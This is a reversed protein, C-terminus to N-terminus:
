PFEWIECRGGAIRGLLNCPSDLNWLSRPRTWNRRQFDSASSRIHPDAAHGIHVSHPIEGFCILATRHSCWRVFHHIVTITGHKLFGSSLQFIVDNVHSFIRYFPCSTVGWLWSGGKCRPFHQLCLAKCEKPVASASNSSGGPTWDKVESISYSILTPPFEHWWKAIVWLIWPEAIYPLMSGM